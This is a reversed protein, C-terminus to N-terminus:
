NFNSLYQAREIRGSNEPIEFRSDISRLKRGFDLFFSFFESAFWEVAFIASIRTVFSFPVSIKWLFNEFIQTWSVLNDEKRTFKPCSPSCM